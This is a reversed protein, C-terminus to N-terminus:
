KNKGGENLKTLDIKNSKLYLYFNKIEQNSIAKKVPKNVKHIADIDIVPIGKTKGKMLAWTIFLEQLFEVPLSHLYAIFEPDFNDSSYINGDFTRFKM